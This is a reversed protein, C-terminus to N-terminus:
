RLIAIDIAQITGGRGDPLSIHAVSQDEGLVKVVLGEPLILANGGRADPQMSANAHIIVAINRPVTNYASYFALVAFLVGSILSGIVFSRRLPPRKRLRRWALAGAMVFFTALSIFAWRNSAEPQTLVRWGRVLAPDAGPKPGFRLGEQVTRLNQQAPVFGPQAKLARCWALVADSTHHRRYEANGLKFFAIAGGGGAAARSYSTVASDWSKRAYARDGLAVAGDPATDNTAGATAVRLLSLLFFFFGRMTM